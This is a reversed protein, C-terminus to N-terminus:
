DLMKISPIDEFHKKNDTYLPVEKCCATAGILFDVQRGSTDKGQGRMKSYHTACFHALATGFEEDTKVRFKVIFQFFWSHQDRILDPNEYSGRLFEYYALPSIEFDYEKFHKWFTALIKENKRFLGILISSCLMAKDKKKNKEM